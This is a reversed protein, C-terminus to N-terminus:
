PGPKRGIARVGNIASRNQEVEEQMSKVLEMCEEAPLDYRAQFLGALRTFLARLDSVLFSGIRGGWEGVPFSMEKRSVEVLGARGLYQDLSGYVIGITDLGHERGLRRLLEYLRETAPGAREVAPSAEGLEVWGGPKVSRVLDAVAAPWSRVPIGSTLLRQHVFDFGADAFPLGQLLNGRVFRYNIPPGPKSPALDFGVVLARPFEACMEFAWQGTGCGVDLIRAPDDLPALHNGGLVERAAHHQIDLRDTESSHRPLAYASGEPGPAGNAM